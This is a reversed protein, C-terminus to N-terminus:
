GVGGADRGEGAYRGGKVVGVGGRCGSVRPMGVGGADWCGRLM